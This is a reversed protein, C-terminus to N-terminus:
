NTQTTDMYPYAYIKGWLGSSAYITRKNKHEWRWYLLARTLLAAPLIPYLFDSIFILSQLPFSTATWILAGIFVVVTGILFLMTSLSQSFVGKKEIVRLTRQAVLGFCVAGSAVGLMISVSLLGIPTDYRVNYLWINWFALLTWGVALWRDWHVMRYIM